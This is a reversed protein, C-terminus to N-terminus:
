LRSEQLHYPVRSYELRRVGYATVLISRVGWHCPIPSHEANEFAAALPTRRSCRVPLCISLRVVCALVNPRIPPSSFMWTLLVFRLGATFVEECRVTVHQKNPSTSVRSSFYFLVYFMYHYMGGTFVFCPLSFVGMNKRSVRENVAADKILESIRQAFIRAHRPDSLAEAIEGLGVQGRRHTCFRLLTVGVGTLTSREYETPHLCYERWISPKDLQM